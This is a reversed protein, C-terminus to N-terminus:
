GSNRNNFKMVSQKSTMGSVSSGNRSSLNEHSLYKRIKEQSLAGRQTLGAESLKPVSMIDNIISQIREQREHVTIDNFISGENGQSDQSLNDDDDDATESWKPPAYAALLKKGSEETRLKIKQM